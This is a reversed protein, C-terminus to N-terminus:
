SCFSPLYLREGRLAYINILLDPRLIVYLHQFQCAKEDKDGDGKQCRPGDHRATKGSVSFGYRFVTRSLGRWAM